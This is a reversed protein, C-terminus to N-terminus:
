RVTFRVTAWRGAEDVCRLSHRGRALPWRFPVDAAAASLLEDDLFWFVRGGDAVAARFAVQQRARPLDGLLIFAQGDAPSLIRPRQPQADALRAPHVAAATAAPRHGSARLWAAVDAPWHPGDRRCVGCRRQRDAAPIYDAQRTHECHPGAPLGTLACVHRRGLGAPRAFWAPPARDAYLRRFIRAVVPAAATRGVLVESRAGDFNGLWVVVTYQPDYGVCWADRRGQSTGTKFAMRPQDRGAGPCLAALSRPAALCETVLFAAEASLAPRPAPQPDDDTWRPPLYRGGRALASYAAALELPTVEAAGMTLALGYHEAPRDLTSLGLERLLLHLRALGVRRALAVAPVNRSAGLAEDAPIPGLYERDFNEVRYHAFCAPVDHLVTAPAALGEQFALAYTFPKLASGPSRPATAGNVQGDHEADHFDVNGVMARIAATRNELVVAAANFAGDGALGRAAEALADETLGQVRADLTTRIKPGDAYRLHVRDAFHPAAFPVFRAHVQLPETRADRYQRRTIFGCDYMLWLVVNRRELALDPRRDPRYRTPAQPLGAITAAEALSLESAPKAFYRWAAAEAGRVNGGYPALNLYWALIQEKSLIQELQVARFAEVAKGFVGRDPRLGLLRVTQMTITSAGSFVKGRQVNQVVARCVGYADVGNHQRFRRDEAALTAQVLLPSFGEFQQPISWHDDDAVYGRLAGGNRDTVLVSVPRQKLAERPFPLVASLVAFAIWGILLGAM